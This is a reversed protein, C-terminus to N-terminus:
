VKNVEVMLILVVWVGSGGVLPGDRHRVRARMEAAATAAMAVRTLLTCFWPVVATADRHRPGPGIKGLYRRPSPLPPPIWGGHTYCMVYM